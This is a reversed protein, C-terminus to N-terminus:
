PALFDFVHKLFRESQEVHLWHGANHITTIQVHPFLREIVDVHQPQMFSSLGGKFFCTDGLFTKGLSPFSSLHSLSNAIGDLNCIWTWKKDVRTLNQLLFKQMKPDIVYGGLYKEVDVRKTMHELPIEKM